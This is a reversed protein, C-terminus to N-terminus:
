REKPLDDVSPNKADACRELLIISFHYANVETGKDTQVTVGGKEIQVVVGELHKDQWAVVVRDGLNCFLSARYRMAEEETEFVHHLEARSVFLKKQAGQPSQYLIANQGIAVVEGEFLFYSDWRESDYIWVKKGVSINSKSPIADKLYFCIGKCFFHEDNKWLRNWIDFTEHPFAVDYRWGKERRIGIPTMGATRQKWHDCEDSCADLLEGEENIHILHTPYIDEHLAGRVVTCDDSYGFIVVIGSEELMLEEKTSLEETYNRDNLLDAVEKLNM